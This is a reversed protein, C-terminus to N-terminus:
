WIFREDDLLKSLRVNYPRYFDELLQRTKNMMPEKSRKEFHEATNAIKNNEIEKMQQQKLPAVGIFKFVTNVALRRNSYYDDEAHLILMQDRPFVSLWDAIFIYYISERIYM